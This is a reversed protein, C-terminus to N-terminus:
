LMSPFYNKLDDCFVNEEHIKMNVNFLVYLDGRKTKGQLGRENIVIDMCHKNSPNHDINVTDDFHELCFKVGHYYDYVSIDYAYVLDHKDILHNIVYKKCDIINLHVYLNGYSELFKNWDGKHHYCRDIEYDVFPIFLTHLEKENKDNNYSVKVKKGYETYLEHLTVDIDVYIDFIKTDMEEADYFTDEFEDGKVDQANNQKDLDCQNYNNNIVDDYLKKFVHCFKCFLIMYNMTERDDNRKFFYDNNNKNLFEYAANVKLFAENNDTPTSTPAVKDPHVYLAKKKYAKKIEDQTAETNPDLGLIKYAIDRNLYM